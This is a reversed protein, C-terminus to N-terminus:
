LEPVVEPYGQGSATIKFVYILGPRLKTYVANGYVAEIDYQSLAEPNNALEWIHEWFM